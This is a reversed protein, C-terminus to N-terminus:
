LNLPSLSTLDFLIQPAGSPCPLQNKNRQFTLVFLFKSSQSPSRKQQRCFLFVAKRMLKVTIRISLDFLKARCIDFTDKIISNTISLGGSECILDNIVISGVKSEKCIKIGREFINGNPKPSIVFKRLECNSITVHGSDFNFEHDYARAFCETFILQNDFTCEV